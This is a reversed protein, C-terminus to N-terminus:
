SRTPFVGQLAVIISIALAPMRNEHPQSGGIQQIANGWFAIPNGTRNGNQVYYGTYPSALTAPIKGVPDPHTAPGGSVSATHLHAPMQTTQLTVSETGLQEGITYDSLGNGQGMCIPLRGQLDPLGFTTSGNGGYYTGLLSFLATNQSISLIQGQCYANGRPAFTGAFMRIEGLYPQTM